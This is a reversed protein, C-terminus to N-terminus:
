VCSYILMIREKRGKGEGKLEVVLGWFWIEGEERRGEEVKEERGGGGGGYGGEPALFLQFLVYRSVWRGGRGGLLGGVDM